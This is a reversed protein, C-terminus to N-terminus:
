TILISDMVISTFEFKVKLDVTIWIIQLMLWGTDFVWLCICYELLHMLCDHHHEVPSVYINSVCDGLTVYSVKEGTCCPGNARGVVCYKSAWWTCCKKSPVHQKVEREKSIPLVHPFVSLFLHIVVRVSLVIGTYVPVILGTVFYQQIYVTDEEFSFALIFTIRPGDHWSMCIAAYLNLM